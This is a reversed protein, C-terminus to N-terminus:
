ILDLIQDRSRNHDGGAHGPCGLSLDTSGARFFPCHTCYADATDLMALGQPGFTKVTMDIGTARSLANIAIQENYPQHWPYAEALEGNRPLFMIMVTHVPLGKNQWGRGYLNAQATYTPGAGHKKYKKLMSPGVTKWDIVTGTVRDYADCSGDIDNGNLMGVDVREEVYWREQGSGTRQAYALNDADLVTELWAHIATGVTAKWNPAMLPNEPHGMLKYGIRRACEHGIESPGIRKQLSRPHNTIAEAILQLLETGVMGPDALTRQMAAPLPTHVPRALDATTTNM